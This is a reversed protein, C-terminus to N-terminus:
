VVHFMGLTENDTAAWGSVGSGDIGSTGIELGYLIASQLGASLEGLGGDYFIEGAIRLTHIGVLHHHFQALLGLTETSVDAITDNGLGVEGATRVAEGGIAAILYLGVGHDDGRTGTGFVQSKGVLLFVIALSNRCTGGAVSEEVALLHYGYHATAICGALLGDIEGAQATLDIHDYAFGIQASGIDHAATHLFIGFNFNEVFM